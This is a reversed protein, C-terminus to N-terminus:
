LNILSFLHNVIFFLTMEENRIVIDRSIRFEPKNNRIRAPELRLDVATIRSPFGRRHDVSIRKNSIEVQTLGTLRCRLITSHFGALLTVNSIGVGGRRLGDIM